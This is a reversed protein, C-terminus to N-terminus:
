SQSAPAFKSWVAYGHSGKRVGIEIISSGCSDLIMENEDVDTAIQILAELVRPEDYDGLDMAADHRVGLDISKGQL